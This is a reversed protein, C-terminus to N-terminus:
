FARYSIIVLTLIQLTHHGPGGMDLGNLNSSVKDFHEHLVDLVVNATHPQAGMRNFFTDRFNVDMGQPFTLFGEQLFHFYHDATVTSNSFIPGVTGSTSWACCAKRKEPRLLKEM